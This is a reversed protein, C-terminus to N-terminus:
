NLSRKRHILKKSRSPRSQKKVKGKNMSKGQKQMKRRVNIRLKEQKETDELKQLIARLTEIEKKTLKM